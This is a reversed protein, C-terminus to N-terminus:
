SKDSTVIHTFEKTLLARKEDNKVAGIFHGISDSSIRSLEKTEMVEKMIFLILPLQFHEFGLEGLSKIIRTIRLHNKASKNLNVFRERWNAANRQVAGTEESVLETGFFDLMMKYARLVRGRLVPDNQIAQAETPQLPVSHKNAIAEDKNPFLWPLYHFEFELKLYDGKWALIEEILAGPPPKTPIENRYFMLNLCKSPDPGANGTPSINVLKGDREVIVSDFANFTVKKVNTGENKSASAGPEQSEDKSASTGM